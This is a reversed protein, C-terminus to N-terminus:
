ILNGGHNVSKSNCTSDYYVGSSYSNFSSIAAISVSIPGVTTVANRLAEENTPIDVYGTDTAGINSNKFKCAQNVGM